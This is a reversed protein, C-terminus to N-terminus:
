NCLVGCGAPCSQTYNTFDETEAAFNKVLRGSHWPATNAPIDQYVGENDPLLLGSHTFTPTGQGIRQALMEYTTPDPTIAEWAPDDGPGPGPGGGGFHEFLWDNLQGTGGNALYYERWTSVGQDKFFEYRMDPLAGTYGATRLSDFILDNLQAM